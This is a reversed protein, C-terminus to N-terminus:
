IHARGCNGWPQWGAHEERAFMELRPEPSCSALLDYVESPKSSHMKGRPFSFVTGVDHRLLPLIGQVGFMIHESQGRFYNGMGFSPKAWTVLTIFRFGWEDFLAFGKPLSRNTIWLYLHCNPAARSRIPLAKIGDFPMTQYVPRARGYQDIDGEDGWDWPPDIIIASFPGTPISDISDSPLAIKDDIREGQRRAENTLRKLNTDAFLHPSKKLIDALEQAETVSELYKNPDKGIYRLYVVKGERREKLHWYGRQDKNLYPM